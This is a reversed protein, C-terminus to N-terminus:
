RQIVFTRSADSRETRSARKPALYPEKRRIGQGVLLRNDVPDYDITDPMAEPSEPIGAAPIGPAASVPLRPPQPPRGQDVDSM